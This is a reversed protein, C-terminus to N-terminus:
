VFLFWKAHIETAKICYSFLSQQSKHKHTWPFLNVVEVILDDHIQHFLLMLANKCDQILRAHIHPLHRILHEQLSEISFQCFMGVVGAALYQFYCM